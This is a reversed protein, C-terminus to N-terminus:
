GARDFEERTVHWRAGCRPCFAEVEPDGRFLEEPDATFIQRLAAVIKEPNCGCHFRFTREELDQLGSDLLAVADERSMSELRGEGADPLALLMIYRDDELDFFRASHQESRAYYDEFIGLVDLGDVDITSQVPGTGPRFTQVFLRGTEATRVDETFIRGAVSSEGADGTLFLNLPPEKVNLTVGATETPPRTALHLTLAALGERMMARSLGDLPLEWREVHAEYAAFLRGFDAEAVAVTRQPDLRRVVTAEGLRDNENLVDGPDPPERRGPLPRRRPEVVAVTM